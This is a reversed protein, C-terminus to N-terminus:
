DKGTQIDLPHSPVDIPEERRWNFYYESCANLSM